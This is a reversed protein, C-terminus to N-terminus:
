WTIDVSDIYVACSSAYDAGEVTVCNKGANLQFAPTNTRIIENASLYRRVSPDDDRGKYSVYAKPGYGIAAFADVNTMLQVSDGNITIKPNTFKGVLRIKVQETPLDTRSCYSFTHSNVLNPTPIFFKRGWAEEGCFYEAERECSYDIYWQNTCSVGFMDYRAPVIVKRSISPNNPDRATTKRPTYLPYYCLPKWKDPDEIPVTELNIPCPLCNDQECVGNYDYMDECYDPDFEQYRSPCYECLFTRTNKAMRWYGDMLEFTVDIRYIDRTVASDENESIDTVRANTWLLEVANQVAWLKGSVLLQRKIFRAYRVKEECGIKRFDFAITARFTTAELKQSEGLTPYYAGHTNNTYTQSEGKTAITYNPDSIEGFAFPLQNFQLLRKNLRVPRNSSM